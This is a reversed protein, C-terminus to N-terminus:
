ERTKAAVENLVQEVVDLAKPDDFIYDEFFREVERRLLGEFTVGPHPYYVFTTTSTSARRHQVFGKAELRQLYSLLTTYSRSADGAAALHQGIESITAEGRKLVFSLILWESPAVFPKQDTDHVRPPPMKLFLHHPISTSKLADLTRM